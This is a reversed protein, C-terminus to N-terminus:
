VHARGIKHFLVQLLVDGLEEVLSDIDGEDIADVAEYAEEILGQRISEHTQEMDWPCGGKSRLIGMIDLLDVFDFIKKGKKDLKPVYLSTLSGIDQNRDLEYIPLEHKEEFGQVGASHILYVM